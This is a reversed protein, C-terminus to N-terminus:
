SYRCRLLIDQPYNGFAAGFINIGGVHRADPKVGIRVAIYDHAMIDLTSLDVSSIKIGDVFSGEDTVQWSKLLGYQSNWSEWWSPTLVGRQGGFDGPCTWTGVEKQNIWLTIDSPWESHHLPAESGVELSLQLSQFTANPPIRNPFRYEVYGHHFWLLQAQVREPEYFSPPDDFLGIIGTASALGCTPMVGCDVYTGIPMSFEMIQEQDIAGYSLNVMIMDYTRACVKQRGRTAPQLETRVLGAEELVTIHLTTTSLPMSLATAVESVNYVHDSLIELIKQRPESALARLIREGEGSNASVNLIRRQFTTPDAV